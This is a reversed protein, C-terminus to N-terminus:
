CLVSTEKGCHGAAGIGTYYAVDAVSELFPPRRM